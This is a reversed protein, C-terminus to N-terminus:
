STGGKKREARQLAKRVAEGRYCGTATVGNIRAQWRSNVKYVYGLFEGTPGDKRVQFTGGQVQDYHFGSATKGQFGRLAAMTEM